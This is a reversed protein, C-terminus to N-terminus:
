RKNMVDFWPAFNSRFHKAFVNKQSFRLLTIIIVNGFREVMLVVKQVVNNILLIAIALHKM